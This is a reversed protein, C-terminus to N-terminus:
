ETAALAGFAAELATEADKLAGRAAVLWDRSADLRERGERLMGNPKPRSRVASGAGDPM